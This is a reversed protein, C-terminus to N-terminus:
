NACYGPRKGWLQRALECPMGADLYAGIEANEKGMKQRLAANKAVQQGLQERVAQLEAAVKSAQLVQAAREDSLKQNATRLDTITTQNTVNAAKAAQAEVRAADRDAQAEKVNDSQWSYGAWFGMGLMAAISLVAGAAKITGATIPIM